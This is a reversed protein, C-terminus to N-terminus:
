THWTVANHRWTVGLSDIRKWVVHASHCTGDIHLDFDPPIGAISPVLLLAGHASLNRITCDILSRCDNFVIRGDKLTRRRPSGRRDQKPGSM